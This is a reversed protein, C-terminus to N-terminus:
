GQDKLAEIIKLARKLDEATVKSDKLIRVEELGLGQLESPIEMGETEEKFFESLTTGLAKCIADLTDIPCKRSGNEISSIYNPSLGALKALQTQNLGAKERLKILKEAVM